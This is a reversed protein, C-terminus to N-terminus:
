NKRLELDPEQGVYILMYYKVKNLDVFKEELYDCIGIVSSTDVRQTMFDYDMAESLTLQHDRMISILRHEYSSAEETKM